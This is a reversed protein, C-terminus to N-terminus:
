TIETQQREDPRGITRQRQQRRRQRRLGGLAPEERRGAAAPRLRLDIQEGGGAGPRRM